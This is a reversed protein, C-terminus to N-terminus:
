DRRRPQEDIGIPGGARRWGTSALWTTATRVPPPGPARPVAERFGDFWAASSHPDIGCRESPRHKRSNFLVYVLARRTESPTTLAHLHYRDAWVAGRRGAARNVARAVRIALGKAGAALAGRNDAEVLLHLHDSQVSFHLLRFGTGSAAALAGRVAVSVRAARMSPVGARARMTVHVPTRPDHAGRRRHAV